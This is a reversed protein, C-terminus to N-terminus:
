RSDHVSASLVRVMVITQPDPRGPDSRLGSAVVVMLGSTIPIFTQFTTRHRTLEDVVLARPQISIDNVELPSENEDDRYITNAISTIRWVGPEESSDTPYVDVPTLRKESFAKEYEEIGEIRSRTATREKHFKM